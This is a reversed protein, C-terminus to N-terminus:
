RGYLFTEGDPSVYENWWDSLDRPNGFCVEYGTAHCLTETGDLEFVKDMPMYTLARVKENLM